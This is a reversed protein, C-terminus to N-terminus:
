TQHQNFHNDIKMLCLYINGVSGATASPNFKNKFTAISLLERVLLFVILFLLKQPTTGAKTGVAPKKNEKPMGPKFVNVIGM